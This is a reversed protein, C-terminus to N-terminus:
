SYEQVMGKEDSAIISGSFKTDASAASAPESAIAEGGGKTVMKDLLNMSKLFAKEATKQQSANGSGKAQAIKDLEAELIIKAKKLTATAQFGVPAVDLTLHHLLLSSALLLSM